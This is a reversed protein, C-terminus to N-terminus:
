NPRNWWRSIDGCICSPYPPALRNLYQHLDPRVNARKEKLEILCRETHRYTSAMLAGHETLVRPLSRRGGHGNSLVNQSELDTDLESSIGVQCKLDDWESKTLQFCCDPQDSASICLM